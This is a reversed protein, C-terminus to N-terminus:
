NLIDKFFQKIANFNDEKPLLVYSENVTTEYLLNETSIIYRVTKSNIQQILGILNKIDLLGIDTKINNKITNFISFTKAPDSFFNIKSLKNKMAFIIQQQRRARDFDNTSFRSRAYYLADQGNLHNPGAPLSFEYGWQSKEYFPKDLTIDVGGLEDIIKEFSSFDIVIANDIYIGTIKSILNKVYNIGNQKRVLAEAYASNIKEKKNYIKVYLDRPVSVISSKGSVKDYSFIMITDTLDAGGTEANPDNEGRVGLILIDLRNEEKEPMIYNSDQEDVTESSKGFTIINAFKNWFSQNEGNNVEITNAKIGLWLFGYILGVGILILFLVGPWHQKSKLDQNFNIQNHLDQM